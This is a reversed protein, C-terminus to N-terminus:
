FSYDGVADHTCDVMVVWYMLRLFRPSLYAVDGDVSCEVLCTFCRGGM